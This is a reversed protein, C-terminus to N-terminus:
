RSRWLGVLMIFWGVILFPLVHTSDVVLIYMGILLTSIKFFREQTYRSM